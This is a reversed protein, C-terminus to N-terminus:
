HPIQFWEPPSAEFRSYLDDLDIPDHDFGANALEAQLVDVVDVAILYKRTWAPGALESESSEALIGLYETPRSRLVHSWFAILRKNFDEVSENLKSRIIALAYDEM